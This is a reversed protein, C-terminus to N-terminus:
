NASIQSCGSSDEHRGYSRLTMAADPLNRLDRVYQSNAPGRFRPNHQVAEELKADAIECEARAATIGFVTLFTCLIVTRAIM